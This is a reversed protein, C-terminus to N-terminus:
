ALYVCKVRRLSLYLADKDQTFTMIWEYCMFILILSFMVIALAVTEQGGYIQVNMFHVKIYQSCSVWVWFNFNAIKNFPSESSHRQTHHWIPEYHCSSMGVLQPYGHQQISSESSHRWTHHWIVMLWQRVEELWVWWWMKIRMMWLPLHTWHEISTDSFWDASTTNLAWRLTNFDCFTNNLFIM